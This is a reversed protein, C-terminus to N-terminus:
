FFREGSQKDCGATSESVTMTLEARLREEKGEEWTWTGVDKPTFPNFRWLAQSSGTPARSRSLCRPFPLQIVDGSLGTTDSPFLLAESCCTLLSM